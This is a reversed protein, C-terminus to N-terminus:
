GPTKEEDRKREEIFSVVEEFRGALDGELWAMFDGTEEEHLEAQKWERTLGEVNEKTWDPPMSNWLMEYDNDLFFNGTSLHLRDAWLALPRYRTNDLLRHAEGPSLTIRGAREALEDPVHERCAEALSVEIGDDWPSEILYTMLQAGPRYDPMEHYDDYSLGLVVVPIRYVLDGYSEMDGWKLPDELPFYRDEFYTAFRAIQSAPTPQNLIDKEREPLLMKVMNVFQAYSEADSIQAVLSSLSPIRRALLRQALTLFPSARKPM